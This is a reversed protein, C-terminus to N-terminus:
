PVAKTGNWTSNLWYIWKANLIFVNKKKKQWLRVTVKKVNIAQECCSSLSEWTVEFKLFETINGERKFISLNTAAHFILNKKKKGCEGCEPVDSPQWLFLSLWETTDLGRHSWPSYLEHSEGPWFVLTPLRERRWPIKGILSWVWTELMAPLNKVLQAVPFTVNYKSWM